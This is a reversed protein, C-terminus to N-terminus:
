EGGCFQQIEEETYWMESSDYENLDDEIKTQEILGFLKSILWIAIVRCM